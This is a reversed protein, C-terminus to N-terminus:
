GINSEIRDLKSSLVERRKGDFVGLGLAEEAIDIARMATHATKLEEIQTAHLRRELKSAYGKWEKLRASYLERAEEASQASALADDRQSIAIEVLTYLEHITRDLELYSAHSMSVRPGLNSEVPRTEIDITELDINGTDSYQPSRRIMSAEPGETPEYIADIADTDDTVFPEATLLGDM